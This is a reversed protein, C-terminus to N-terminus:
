CETRSRNSTNRSYDLIYATLATAAFTCVWFFFFVLGYIASPDLLWYPIHDLVWPNIYSFFVGVEVIAALFSTWLSVGIREKLRSWTGRASAGMVAGASQCHDGVRACHCPDSRGASMWLWWRPLPNNYETLAEDWM